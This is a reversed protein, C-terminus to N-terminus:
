GCSVSVLWTLLCVKTSVIVLNSFIILSIASSVAIPYIFEKAIIPDLKIFTFLNYDTLYLLFWFLLPLITFVILLTKERRFSFLIYPLGINFIYIFEVSGNKGVFSSIIAIGLSSTLLYLIRAANLKEKKALYAALVYSLINLANYNRLWIFNLKDALVTCLVAFGINILSVTFVLNIRRRSYKSM